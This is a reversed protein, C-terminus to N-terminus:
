TSIGAFAQSFSAVRKSEAHGLGVGDRAQGSGKRREDASFGVLILSLQIGARSALAHFFHKIRISLRHMVCFEASFKLKRCVSLCGPLQTRLWIDHRCRRHVIGEYSGVRGVVVSRGWSSKIGADMQGGSYSVGVDM